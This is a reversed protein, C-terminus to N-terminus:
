KNNLFRYRLGVLFMQQYNIENGNWKDPKILGRTANFEFDFYRNIRIDFGLNIGIDFTKFRDSAVAYKYNSYLAPTEQIQSFRFNSNLLFSPVAGLKISFIKGIKYNINLPIDIYNLNYQYSTYVTLTDLRNTYKTKFGRQTFRLGAQWGWHKSLTDSYDFGFYASQINQNWYTINDFSYAKKMQASQSYGIDFAFNAWSSQAHSALYSIIILILTLINKM